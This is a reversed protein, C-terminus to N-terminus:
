AYSVMERRREVYCNIFYDVMIEDQTGYRNIFSLGVMVSNHFSDLSELNDYDMLLEDYDDMIASSTMTDRLLDAVIPNQASSM